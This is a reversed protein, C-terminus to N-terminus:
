RPREESEDAGCSPVLQQVIPSATWARGELTLVRAFYYVNPDLGELEVSTEGGRGDTRVRTAFLDLFQRFMAEPLLSSPPRRLRQGREIPWLTAFLSREHGGKHVSVDIRQRARRPDPGRWSLAAYVVGREAGCFTRISLDRVPSGASSGDRRSAAVPLSLPDPGALASAAFFLAAAIPTVSRLSSRAARCAAAAADPRYLPGLDLSLYADLSEPSVKV